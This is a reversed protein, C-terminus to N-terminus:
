ISIQLKPLLHSSVATIGSKDNFRKCTENLLKIELPVIEVIQAFPDDACNKHNKEVENTIM